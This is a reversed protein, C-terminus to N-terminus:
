SPAKPVLALHTPSAYAPNRRAPPRPLPRTLFNPSNYPCIHSSFVLLFSCFLNHWHIRDYLEHPYSDIRTTWTIPPRVLALLLLPNIKLSTSNTLPM